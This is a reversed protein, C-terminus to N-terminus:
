FAIALGIRGLSQQIPAQLAGSGDDTERSLSQFDYDGTVRLRGRLADVALGLGVRMAGLGPVSGGGSFKSGFMLGGNLRVRVGPGLPHAMQVGATVAGMSQAEFEPEAKRNVYGLEASFPGAVYYRVLVDTESADFETTATGGSPKYKIKSLWVDASFKKWVVSAKAGLGGGRYRLQASTERYDGFAIQPGISFQQASLRVTPINALVLAATVTWGDLRGVTWRRSM